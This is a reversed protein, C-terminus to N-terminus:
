TLILRVDLPAAVEPGAMKNQWPGAAQGAARDASSCAAAQMGTPRTEPLAGTTVTLPPAHEPAAKDPQKALCSDPATDLAASCGQAHEGQTSSAAAELQPAGDRTAVVSSPAHAKDAPGSKSATDKAAGAAGAEDAPVEARQEPETSPPVSPTLQSADAASTHEVDAHSESDAPTTLKVTPGADPQGDSPSDAHTVGCEHKNDHQTDNVPLLPRDTVPKSVRQSQGLETSQDSRLVVRLVVLLRSAGCM